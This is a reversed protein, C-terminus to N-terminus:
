STGTGEKAGEAGALASSSIAHAMVHANSLLLCTYISIAFALDDRSQGCGGTGLKMFLNQPRSMTKQDALSSIWFALPLLHWGQSQAEKAQATDM